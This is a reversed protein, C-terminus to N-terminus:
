YPILTCSRQQLSGAGPAGSRRWHLRSLLSCNRDHTLVQTRVNYSVVDQFHRFTGWKCGRVHKFSARKSWKVQIRPLEYKWLCWVYLAATKLSELTFSSCLSFTQVPTVASTVTSSTLPVGGLSTLIQVAPSTCKFYCFWSCVEMDKDRRRGRLTHSVRPEQM